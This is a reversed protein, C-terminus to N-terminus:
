LRALPGTKRTPTNTADRVRIMCAQPYNLFGRTMAMDEEDGGGGEEGGEGGGVIRKRYHAVLSRHHVIGVAVARKATTTTATPLGHAVAGIGVVGGGHLGHTQVGFYNNTRTQHEDSASM